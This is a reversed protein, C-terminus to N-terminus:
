VASGPGDLFMQLAAKFVIGLYKILVLPHFDHTFKLIHVRLPVGPLRGASACFHCAPLTHVVKGQRGSKFIVIAYHKIRMIDDSRVGMEDNGAKDALPLGFLWVLRFENFLM